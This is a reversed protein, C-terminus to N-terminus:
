HITDLNSFSFFQPMWQVKVTGTEGHRNKGVICECVNKEATDPNYYDDRYLMIVQDADQEIAGSERLDSLLPRKDTRGEAARSLQSLCIVPVGLDKAMIKLARSIEAVVTVRNEASRSEKDARTMLQLYDVVILGLNDLRRCLANMETVTIVPNDSIRIDTQALAAAAVSIKEWDEVELRGTSLKKNDISSECSLLRSALQERSMELSFFAVTKRTVKAVNALINLALTTKGMGPRAAIIILDSRNLGNIKRDLDKLGTPYGPFESESKSLENLQTFLKVMVTGIRELEDDANGRRLSFVKREANELIGSATGEQRYVMENIDDAAAGLSRLLAKDRVIEAYYRVNAATPTIEMLQRLYGATTAEDYYGNEKLKGLVTVPDIAQSFSFMRYITEYIEANQRLYFDEPKLIGVVDSVCRSDILMSGLVSQEAELSQPAKKNLIDDFDPMYM